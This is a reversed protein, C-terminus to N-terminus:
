LNLRVGPGETFSVGAKNLAARIAEAAREAPYPQGSGELRKVTMSSVGAAQALDAQSWGLLGRAARVQAALANKDQELNSCDKHEM